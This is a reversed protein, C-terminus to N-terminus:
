SPLGCAKLFAKQDVSINRAIARTLDITHAERKEYYCMDKEHQDIDRANTVTEFKSEHYARCERSHRIDQNLVNALTTYDAKRM